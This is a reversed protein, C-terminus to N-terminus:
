FSLNVFFEYLHRSKSFDVKSGLTLERKKDVQIQMGISPSTVSHIRSKGTITFFGNNQSFQSTLTNGKKISYHDHTLKVFVQSPTEKITLFKVAKAGVRIQRAKSGQACVDLGLSGVNYEQYAGKRLYTEGISILPTVTMDPTNYVHYGVEIIGGNQHGSRHHSAISGVAAIHRQAKFQYYAYWTLGKIYFSETEYLAYLGLQKKNIQGNEINHELSYRMQGIGIMTGLRLFNSIQHEFLLNQIYNTGKIRPIYTGPYMVSSANFKQFTGKLQMRGKDTQIDFFPLAKEALYRPNLSDQEANFSVSKFSSVQLNREEKKFFLTDFVSIWDSFSLMLVQKIAVLQGIPILKDLAAGIKETTSLTHATEIFQQLYGTANTINSLNRAIIGQNGESFLDSFPLDLLNLQLQISHPQYNISYGFLPSTCSITDFTGTIGSAANLITYTYTQNHLFNGGIPIIKLAGQITATTGGNICDSANTNDVECEYVHTSTWAIAGTVALTGISNGPATTGSSTLSKLSGVGSLRATNSVLVDSHILDTQLNLTANPQITTNGSYTKVGTLTLTKGLAGQLVLSGTGQIPNNLNWSQSTANVILTGTVNFNNNTLTSNNSNIISGAINWDGTFNSFDGTLQVNNGNVLISGTETVVNNFNSNSFNVILNSKNIITGTGAATNSQLKLVGSNITTDGTYTNNGTLTLAISGSSNQELSGNGSIVSGYTLDSNQSFRLTGNNQINGTLTGALSNFLLSNNVFTGNTTDLNGTNNLTHNNTITGNNTLTHNNTVSAGTDITFSSGTANQITGNNVCTANSLTSFNGSNVISAGSQNTFSTGSGTNYFYASASNTMDGTNTMGASSTNNFTGSNTLTAGLQNTFSTGSNQNSFTGDASNTISGTNTLQAGNESTFTGDNVIAGDNSFTGDNNFQGTTANTLTSGSVNDFTASNRNSFNGDNIFINDNEITASTDIVFAGGTHNEISGGNTCYGSSEITFSGYNDIFAGSQNEFTSGSDQIFFNGGLANDISGSNQIDTTSQHYFNGFNNINSQNDIRSGNQNYFNASSNNTITGTNSIAGFDNTFEGGNVIAGDNQLIFNTYFTASTNNTLTGGVQNEFTSNDNQYFNGGANNNISGSNQIDAYHQHYFNGTNNVTSGNQIVMTAQNQNYLNAGSNNTLTGINTLQGSENTLTGNNNIIGDNNLTSNTTLAGGLNNVITGTSQNNVTAATNYFIAGNNNTISSSNSVVGYAQNTFTGNNIISSQNDLLSGTNEETYSGGVNIVINGNNTLTNSTLSLVANVIVNQGSNITYGNYNTNTNITTDADIKQFAFLVGILIQFCNQLGNFIRKRDISNLFIYSM